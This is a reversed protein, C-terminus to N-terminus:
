NLEEIDEAFHHGSITGRCCCYHSLALVSHLALPHLPPQPPWAAGDSGLFSRTRSLFCLNALLRSGPGSQEPGPQAVQEMESHLTRIQEEKNKCGQDRALSM